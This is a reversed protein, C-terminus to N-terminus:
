SVPADTEMTAPCVTAFFMAAAKSHVHTLTKAHADNALAWFDLRDTTQIMITSTIAHSCFTLFNRIIKMFLIEVLSFFRLQM